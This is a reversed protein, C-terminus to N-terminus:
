KLLWVQRFLWKCSQWELKFEPGEVEDFSTGTLSGM